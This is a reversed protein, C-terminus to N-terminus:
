HLICFKLMSKLQLSWLWIVIKFNQLNDFCHVLYYVLVYEYISMCVLYYISM